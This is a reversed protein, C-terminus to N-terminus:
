PKRYSEKTLVVMPLVMAWAESRTCRTSNAIRIRPRRCRTGSPWLIGVLCPTRCFLFFHTIRIKLLRASHLETLLNVNVILLSDITVVLLDHM